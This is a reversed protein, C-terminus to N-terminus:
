AEPDAAPVPLGARGRSSAVKHTHVRAGPPIERSEPGIPSGYKFVGDGTAIARLAIKHGAAVPELVVISVGNAEITRGTELPELATAVNDRASIVLVAKM